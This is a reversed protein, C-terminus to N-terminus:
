KGSGDAFLLPAVEHLYHRWVPWSHGGASPRWVHRIGRQTLAAAFEQNAGFARDDKGCGLWFLKLRSNADKEYEVVLKGGVIRTGKLVGESEPLLEKWNERAPNDMSVKFVRFKPAGENTQIYMNNQYIEANYTFDKGGVLM